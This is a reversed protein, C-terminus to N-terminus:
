MVAPTSSVEDATIVIRGPMSDTVGRTHAVLFSQEFGYRGRLLSVLHTALARCNAGDLAGFAEDICAVSWATNRRARLWAGASLQLVVGALDEAAGSVDSLNVEVKEITKPGRAAGCRPCEKIGRGKGYASGCVACEDALGTGERSWAVEVRLDIGSEELSANAMATIEGLAGEAIRRQAGTKGLIVCAQQHTEIDSRISARGDICKGIAAFEAKISDFIRVVDRAEAEDRQYSEWAAAAEAEVTSEAPPEGEREIRDAAPKLRAAQETLSEIERIVRQLRSQEILQNDFAGKLEGHERKVRNLSAQADEALKRNSARATNMKVRDPCGHGDVPCRGDFEGCALRSAQLQRDTAARCEGAVVDLKRRAEAMTGQLKSLILRGGSPDGLSAAEELLGRHRGADASARKWEALKMAEAKHADAVSKSVDAKARAVGIIEFMEPSVEELTIETTVDDFFKSLHRVIAEKHVQVETVLKSERDLLAGLATRVRKEARQLPELQLWGAIISMREAPKSTVFRSIEKQQFFSTALFDDDTLGIHEELAAQADTDFAKRGDAFEVVLRTAKGRQRRREILTGDSLRIGGGGESEGRTIWGDETPITVPRKGFVVFRILNLCSSKGVWNSREPNGVTEAVVGYVTPTLDLKHDGKYRLWNLARLETIHM